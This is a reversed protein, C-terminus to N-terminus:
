SSSRTIMLFAASVAALFSSSGARSGVPRKPMIPWLGLRSSTNRVMSFTALLGEVTNIVPSDPVPLSSIAEASWWWEGRALLGKMLILQAAM